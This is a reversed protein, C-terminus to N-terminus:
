TPGGMMSVQASYETPFSGQEMVKGGERFRIIPQIVSDDDSDLERTEDDNNTFQSINTTPNIHGSVAEHVKGMKKEQKRRIRSKKNKVLQTALERDKENNLLMEHLLGMNSGYFDLRDQNEKYPGFISWNGFNVSIVPWKIVGEYKRRFKRAESDSTVTTLPNIAWDIDPKECYLDQVASLLEEYNSEFYYLLRYFIDASPIMERVTDHLTIDKMRKFKVMQPEKYMDDMHTTINKKERELLEKKKMFEDYEKKTCKILRKVLMPKGGKRSTISQMVEKIYKKEDNEENEKRNILEYLQKANEKDDNTAKKDHELRKKEMYTAMKTTPNIILKRESDKPNPKYASRVHKEPNYQFCWEMFEMIHIKQKMAERAKSYNELLDDSVPTKDNVPKPDALLEPNDIFDYVNVAPVDDPIKWEDLMRMLFSLVTTFVLKIMYDRAMPTYMFMLRKNDKIDLKTAYPNTKERVATLKNRLIDLNESTLENLPIKDVEELLKLIEDDM